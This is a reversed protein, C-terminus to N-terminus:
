RGGGYERAEEARIAAQEEESPEYGTERTVNHKARDQEPIAWEPLDRIHGAELAYLYRGLGHMSCARKLSDSAGGKVAAITTDEGVDEKEIWENPSGDRIGLRCRVGNLGHRELSVRWNGWGVIGDLANQYARADAYIVAGIQKKNKFVPLERLSHLPFRHSLLRQGLTKPTETTPM